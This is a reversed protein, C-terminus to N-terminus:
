KKGTKLYNTMGDFMKMQDKTYARQNFEPPWQGFAYGRFYAPVGTMQAWEAYPRQENENAQAHAYQEQLRAMQDPTLSQQFKAYYDQVVPDVNVLHHSVVDAMVDRPTAAPDYVEVGFQNQGFGKPRPNEPDGMEGPPFSEMMGVGGPKHPSYAFGVDHQKLIPYEQVARDYLSPSDPPSNDGLLGQAQPAPQEDDELLGAM